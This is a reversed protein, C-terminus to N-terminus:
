LRRIAGDGIQATVIDIERASGANTTASAV